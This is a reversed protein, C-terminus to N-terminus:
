GAVTALGPAPEPAPLVPADQAPGVVIEETALKKKKPGVDNLDRIGQSTMRQTPYM